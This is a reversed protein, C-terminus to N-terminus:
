ERLRASLAQRGPEGGLEPRARTPDVVDYGHTSGPVADLMPSAYVAGVGLRHLYDALDAAAAFDFEPRLQLRYTSSPM